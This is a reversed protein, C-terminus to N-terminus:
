GAAVAWALETRWAAPDPEASPDSIYRELVWGAPALGAEIAWAEIAAWAAGLGEYPGVHTAVVARGGPQTGPRVVDGEAPARDVPFGVLLEAVEGVAGRYVAFPPGTVTLGQEGVTAMIASFSEDFFTRLAEVPVTGEVVAAPQAALEHVEYEAM